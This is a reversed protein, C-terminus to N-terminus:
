AAAARSLRLSPVASIAVARSRSHRIDRFSTTVRLDEAARWNDASHAQTRRCAGAPGGIIAPNLPRRRAPQALLHERYSGAQGAGARQKCTEALLDHHLCQSGEGSGCRYFSALDHFSREHRCIHRVVSEALVTLNPYSLSHVYHKFIIVIKRVQLHKIAHLGMLSVVTAATRMLVEVVGPYQSAHDYATFVGRRLVRDLLQRRQVSKADEHKVALGTLVAYAATTIQM